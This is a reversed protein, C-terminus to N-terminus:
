HVETKLLRCFNEVGVRVGELDGGVIFLTPVVDGTGTAARILYRRPGPYHPTVEGALLREAETRLKANESLTGILVPPAPSAPTSEKDFLEPLEKTLRERVQAGALLRCAAKGAKVLYFDGFSVDRGVPGIARQLRVTMELVKKKAVAFTAPSICVDTWWMANIGSIRPQHRIHLLCGPDTGILEQQLQRTIQDAVDAGRGTKKAFDILRLLQALYRGELIGQAANTVSVSNYPGEPGPFCGEHDNWFWRMYGHTHVGQYRLRAALWGASRGGEGNGWFSSATTGWAENKADFLIDLERYLTFPNQKPWAMHWRDLYPDIATVAKKDRDFNYTTTMTKIGSPRIARASHIFDAVGKPGFEDMIKTYVGQVGRERLYKAYESWYWTRIRGAFESDVELKDNRSIRRALGLTGDGDLSYTLAAHRM